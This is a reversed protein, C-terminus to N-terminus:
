NTMLISWRINGAEYVDFTNIGNISNEDNECTDDTSQYIHGFDLHPLESEM